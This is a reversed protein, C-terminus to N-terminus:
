RFTMEDASVAGPGAAYSDFGPTREPCLTPVAVSVPM